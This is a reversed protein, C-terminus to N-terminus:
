EGGDLYARRKERILNLEDQGPKGPIFPALKRALKYPHTENFVNKVAEFIMRQKIIEENTDSAISEAMPTLVFNGLVIGYLTSVLAIPIQSLLLDTDGIGMLMGILGIVSGAIGFAPALGAMRRFVQENQFREFSFANVQNSMVERIENLTYNDAMFSLVDRLFPDTAADNEIEEYCVSGQCASRVSLDVLQDKLAERSMGPKKFIDRVTELASLLRFLPFSLLTAGLTGSFVVTFAILNFYAGGNGSALFSAGFLIVCIFIGIFAIQRM